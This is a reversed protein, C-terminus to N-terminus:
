SRIVSQDDASGLHRDQWWNPRSRMSTFATAFVFRYAYYGIPLTIPHGVHTASAGFYGSLASYPLANRLPIFWGRTISPNALTTPEFGMLDM